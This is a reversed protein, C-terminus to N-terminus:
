SNQLNIIGSNKNLEKESDITFHYFYENEFNSPSTHILHDVDLPIRLTPQTKRKIEIIEDIYIIM